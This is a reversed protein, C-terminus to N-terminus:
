SVRNGVEDKRRKELHLRRTWKAKGKKYSRKTRTWPYNIPSEGGTFICVDYLAAGVFAGCLSGAWPGYFWYPDTFLDSGYGLALMALRPGFDRSPNLAAGTQTSFALNLATIVLGIVLSNMGAGPPANQDDGLALITCALFATGIFENFFATAADIYDYRCSTVFGNLINIPDNTLEYNQISALYMGYAILAAMFAGLFQAAFYPMMKRRPFGRYFWLMITISPNLHAGSIGGSIYIGIMTAFGWAWATTNVNSTASLTASVDAAFGITEQVVVALLEALFERNHTRVVSWSTHNNHVEDYLPPNEVELKLDTMDNYVDAYDDVKITSQAGTSDQSLRPEAIPVQHEPIAGLQSNLNEGASHQISLRLAQEASPSLPAGEAPTPLEGAPKDEDELEAEADGDEWAPTMPRQTISVRSGARRRQATQSATSGARAPRTSIRSATTGRRQISTYFNQERQARSDKLQASLKAPNATLQVRGAELDNPDVEVGVKNINEAPAQGNARGDLIEDKM